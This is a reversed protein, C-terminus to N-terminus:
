QYEVVLEVDTLIIDSDVLPNREHLIVKVIHKGKAVDSPDLTKSLWVVESVDSVQAAFQNAYPDNMFHYRYQLGDLEDGDWLIRVVDSKTWDHLRVRLEIRRPTDDSLDDAVDLTITPGDGTLTEKLPVPVTGWIRDNKFAGRWEGEYVLYRHTAAYIKNTGRLTEPSGIQNLLERRTNRDSHWNFVYIGDAGQNHYRSAIARNLMQDKTFPDEPGQAVGPVTADFGPYVVIDTGECLAKFRAVEAESETSAGAAPILIDVLGEEVWAPVDYGIRDCMELYGNVRAALYFPRSRREAIENTMQRVARQLDTLTYRLRFGYDQDLHFAHRQWDLEVGDWDYFECVKRINEFRWKRVEPVSFDWSLAFWESTRNGLLWEPHDRRLQTLAGHRARPMEEPQMGGFHNDNMRVSAYVHLGLEHGREIMTAHPDEGREYMAQLNETGTFHRAGLYRRDPTSGRKAFEDRQWREVESGVSWFHANVQTDEMVAYTKELFQEMTQPYESYGQPAGDWNYIIGYAPPRPM